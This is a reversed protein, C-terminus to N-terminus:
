KIAVLEVEFTLTSNPAIHQGAGNTGYALDSPIFLEWKSGVKMLQLAETWGKIVGNVPFSVTEGRQVSSDFVTGNILKGEYHTEVSDEVKPSPGDGETIIKYQLGSELVTVGEKKANEDLFVKGEDENVKGVEQQKEMMKAQMKQSFAAMVEQMDASSLKSEEGNYASKISETLLDTNIEMEQAKFDNGIQQGITYSLKDVESEM